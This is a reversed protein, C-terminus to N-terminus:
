YQFYPTGTSDTGPSNLRIIKTAPQYIWGTEGDANEPFTVSNGLVTIRADGNLPNVPMASLYHGVFVIQNYFDLETILVNDPDNNPYGPPIGNHQAAYLEITNRLIRLNDKAASEKAQQIHNQVTPLVIAALIGLVAVVILIEVLTFAKKM